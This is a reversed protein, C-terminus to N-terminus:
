GQLYEKKLNDLKEFSVFGEGINGKTETIYGARRHLDMSLVMVRLKDMDQTQIAFALDGKVGYGYAFYRGTLESFRDKMALYSDFDLAFVGKVARGAFSVYKVKKAKLLIFKKGNPLTLTGFMESGWGEFAERDMVTLDDLSVTTNFSFKVLAALKKFVEEYAETRTNEAEASTELIGDRLKQNIQDVEQRTQMLAGTVFQMTKPDKHMVEFLTLDNYLTEVGMAFVETTGHDYIKAAYHNFMDTNYAYEKSGYGSHAIDKLKHAKGGDLSRSKIYERAVLRLSDDAELHHALEHWLVHLEFKNDMMVVGELDHRTTGSAYARDHNKTDIKVKGLRGNTLIFFDKLDQNFKETSIGNKKLKNTMAKTVTVKDAIWKEADAETVASQAKVADKIAKGMAVKEAMFQEKERKHNANLDGFLALKQQEYKEDNEASLADLRPKYSDRVALRKDMDNHKTMEDLMEARLELYPQRLRDYVEQLQNKARQFQRDYREIAATEKDLLAQAKEPDFLGKIKANEITHDVLGRVLQAQETLLTEVQRSETRLDMMRTPDVKVSATQVDVFNKLQLLLNAKKAPDQENEYQELIDKRYLYVYSNSTLLIEHKPMPKGQLLNRLTSVQREISILGKETQGGEKKLEKAHYLDFCYGMRTKVTKFDNNFM